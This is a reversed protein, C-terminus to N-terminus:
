TRGSRQKELVAVRRELGRLEDDMDVVCCRAVAVEDSVAQVVKEIYVLEQEASM